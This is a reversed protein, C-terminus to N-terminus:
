QDNIFNGEYIINKENEYFIGFGNKKGNKWQGVYYYDNLYYFYGYGDYKDNLFDGDYKLKKNSYYEKGKGNKLGKQFSGIYYEVNKYIQKGNGEYINNNIKEELINEENKINEKKNNKSINICINNRKNQKNLSDMIPGIFNGLNNRIVIGLVFNTDKLIIPIGLTHENNLSLYAFEYNSQDISNIIEISFNIEGKKPYQFIYIEKNQFIEFGNLYEHSPLLFYKNEINDPLIQIIIANINLYKYDQIYRENKNVNIEIYKNKHDYILRLKAKKEILRNKILEENTLLCYLPNNEIEFRIFFGVGVEIPTIIKCIAKALYFVENKKDLINNYSDEFVKFKNKGEFNNKSNM